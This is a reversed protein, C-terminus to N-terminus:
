KTPEILLNHAKINNEMQKNFRADKSIINVISAKYHVNQFLFDLWSNWKTQM